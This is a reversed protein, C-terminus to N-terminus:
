SRNTKYTLHSFKSICEDESFVITESFYFNFFFCKIIHVLNSPCYVYIPRFNSIFILMIRKIHPIHFILIQQYLCFQYLNKFFLQVTFIYSKFHFLLKFLLSQFIISQMCLFHYLGDRSALINYSDNYFLQFVKFLNYLSM